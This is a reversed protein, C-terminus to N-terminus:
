IKQEFSEVNIYERDEFEIVKVRVIKSLWDKSESTGFIEILDAIAKSTPTYVYSKGDMEVDFDVVDFTSGAKTTVTRQKGVSLFVIAQSDSNKVDDVKLFNNGIFKTMDM